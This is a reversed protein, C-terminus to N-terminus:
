RHHSSFHCFLGNFLFRNFKAFDEVIQHRCFCFCWWCSRIKRIALSVQISGWLTNIRVIGPGLRTTSASPNADNIYFPSPSEIMFVQPLILSTNNPTCRGVITGPAVVTCCNDSFKASVTVGEATCPNRGISERSSNREKTAQSSGSGYAM